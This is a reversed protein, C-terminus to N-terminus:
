KRSPKMEVYELDYTIKQSCSLNDRGHIQAWGTLGPVVNFRNETSEPLDEEEELEGVVVPRPGVFSMEGVLINLLQPIEDLSTKRLIYGLRTIRSDGAYCYLGTGLNQAGEIMTRFKIIKFVKKQYGVREQTFFINERHFILAAIYVSIFIPVILPILLILLLIDLLRNM